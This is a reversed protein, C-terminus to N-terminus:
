RCCHPTPFPLPTSIVEGGMLAETLLYVHADDQYTCILKLVFPHDVLEAVLKENMIHTAQKKKLIHDKRMAKLALIRETPVHLALRVFGFSGVGLTVFM